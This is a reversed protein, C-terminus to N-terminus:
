PTPAGEGPPRPGPEPVGSGPGTTPTPVSGSTSALAQRAARPEPLLQLALQNGQAPSEGTRARRERQAPTDAGEAARATAHAEKQWRPQTVKPQGSVERLEKGEPLIPGPVKLRPPM